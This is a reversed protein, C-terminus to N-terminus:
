MAQQTLSFDLQTKLQEGYKSTAMTQEVFNIVTILSINEEQGINTVSATNVNKTITQSLNTTQILETDNIKIDTEKTTKDCFSVVQGVLAFSFDKFNSYWNGIFDQDYSGITPEYTM